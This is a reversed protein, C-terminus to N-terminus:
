RTSWLTIKMKELTSYKSVIQSAAAQVFWGAGPNWWAGGQFILNLSPKPISMPRDIGMRKSWEGPINIYTIGDREETLNARDPSEFTMQLKRISSPDNLAIRAWKEAVDSFAGFFPFVYKLTYAADTKETIDYLTRRMESRAWQRAKGELSRLYRPDVTDGSTTEIAREVLANLRRRYLNIYLPSKVLTSEPVEGFAKYFKNAIESSIKTIFNGGIVDAVQAGNVDPYRTADTGLHKEIDKVTIKRENAIALLKGETWEPFLHRMNEANAEALERPTRGMGLSKFIKRGVPSSILFMEVDDVTKGNLFMRGIESGKIQQNVVRLYAQAWNDETGRITIFDGTSQVANSLSDKVRTLNTDVIKSASAIFRDNYYAAQEPTLGKADELTLGHIKIQGVGYASSSIKTSADQKVVYEKDFIYSPHVDTPMYEVPGKPGGTTFPLIKNNKVQMVKRGPKNAVLAIGNKDLTPSETVRGRVVRVPVYPTNELVAAQLRHNGEGVYALGTENDYIVMLPEDFGKGSRLQERYFDVRGKDVENGPMKSLYKTDVFGVVNGTEPLGGKGGDKYQKVNPFLKTKKIGKGSLIQDIESIQVDIAIPNDALERSALLQIRKAELEAKESMELLTKAANKGFAKEYTARTINKSGIAMGSLIAMGGAVSFIRLNGETVNRVPYGLRALVQFKLFQDLGDVIDGVGNKLKMASTYAKYVKGDKTLREAAHYRKLVKYM